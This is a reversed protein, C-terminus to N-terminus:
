AGSGLGLAAALEPHKTLETRLRELDRARLTVPGRRASGGTSYAFRVLQEGGGDLLQVISAFRKDGARQQLSLEDVVTAAGWPTTSTKAM